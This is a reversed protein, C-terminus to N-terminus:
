GASPRYGPLAPDTDDDRPPLTDATIATVRDDDFTITVRRLESEGNPYQFRFVYDWRAPHFLDTLLPTGIALRVQERSMGQRVQDLMQQNIYNGQPISIRYPELFGSRTRDTSSCACLISAMSGALCWLLARHAVVSRIRWVAVPPADRDARCHHPSTPCGRRVATPNLALPM